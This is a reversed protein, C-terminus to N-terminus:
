KEGSLPKRPRGRPRITVDVKLQRCLKEVWSSQGLPLGTENSRRIEALEAGEPQQHVYASWRRQRAAPRFALSEYPPLPDLLPDDASEGHHRFSSWRYAFVDQRNNGRNIVHYILDDAIPRLPRPM